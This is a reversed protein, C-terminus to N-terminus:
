LDCLMARSVASRPSRGEDYLPRWADWDVDEARIEEIVDHFDARLAALVGAQWEEWASVMLLAHM